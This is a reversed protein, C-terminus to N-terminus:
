YIKGSKVKAKKWVIDTRDSLWSPLTRMKIGSIFGMAAYLTILSSGGYSIFPLTIGVVPMVYLCMGINLLVQFILMGSYGMVVLASFASRAKTGIYLCRLIIATLLLILIACGVLGLEEACTSFIFDTYREPLFNRSPNQTLTGNLYGSGTLGGSRIALLSRTQNWGKDMPDLSHDLVVRVRMVWYNDEDLLLWCLFIGCAAFLGGVLFWRKQLGAIWCMIAFIAIYVLASGADGSCVFILGCFWLLHIVLQAVSRIRSLDRIDRRQLWVLQKALLMVFFLKVIEAPMISFPLFKFELWNTNGNYGQGLVILSAIFLSSFVFIAKWHEMLIELDIYNCVVFVAIGIVSAILQKMPLSHYTEQFRTASYILILGFSNAAICLGLLFMDAREFFDKVANRIM